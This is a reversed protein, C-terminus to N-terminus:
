VATPEACPVETTMVEGALLAEIEERVLTEKELLAAVLGLLTGWRERLVARARDHARDLLGRIENDIKLATGEAYDRQPAGWDPFAGEQKTFVRLGLDEAMGYETVISKAIATARQLDNAAGTTIQGCFLEEATRGGVLSAIEDELAERTRLVKDREPLPMTYGLAGGRSAISMKHVPDTNPLSEMVIAHGAEHYAVVRREQGSLIKKSREPGAILRKVQGQPKGCFSCHYLNSKGGDGHTATM